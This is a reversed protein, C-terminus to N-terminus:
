RYFQKSSIECPDEEKVFNMFFIVFLIETLTGQDEMLKITLGCYKFVMEFM